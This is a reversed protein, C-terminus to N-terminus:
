KKARESQEPAAEQDQTEDQQGSGEGPADKLEEAREEYSSSEDRM